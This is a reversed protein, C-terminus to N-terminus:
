QFNNFMLLASFNQIKLKKFKKNPFFKKQRLLHTFRGARLRLAEEWEDSEM